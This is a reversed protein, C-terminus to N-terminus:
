QLGVRVTLHSPGRLRVIMGVSLSSNRTIYDIFLLSESVSHSVYGNLLLVKSINQRSLIADGVGELVLSPLVSTFLSGCGFVICNSALIADLLLPNPEPSIEHRDTWEQIPASKGASLKYKEYRKRWTPDNLLYAIKSIPSSHLSSVSM